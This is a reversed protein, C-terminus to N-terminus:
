GDRRYEREGLTLRFQELLQQDCIRVSNPEHEDDETTRFQEGLVCRQSDNWDQIALSRDSCKAASPSNNVGAIQDTPNDKSSESRDDARFEPNEFCGNKTFDNGGIDSM